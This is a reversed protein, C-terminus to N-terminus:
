LQCQSQSYDSLVPGYMYINCVGGGYEDGDLQGAAAQEIGDSVQDELAIIWKRENSGGMHGMRLKITAILAQEEAASVV